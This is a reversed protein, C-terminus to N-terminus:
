KALLAEARLVLASYLKPNSQEYEAAVDLVISHKYKCYASYALEPTDYMGIRKQKGFGDSCQALFRVCRAEKTVGLPLSGRTAKSDTFLYNLAKSVFLCTEPSYVKNGQILLDKDLELGQWEQQVMWQKFATFVLWEDCVSCGIYTPFKCQFKSSYCRKLMSVWVVYYPCKPVVVGRTETTYPANNTGVGFVLKRGALSQANAKVEIFM